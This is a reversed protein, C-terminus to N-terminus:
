RKFCRCDDRGYKCLTAIGKRINPDKLAENNFNMFGGVGEPITVYFWRKHIMGNDYLKGRAKSHWWKPRTISYFDVEGKKSICM